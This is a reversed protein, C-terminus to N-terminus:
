SRVLYLEATVAVDNALAPEGSPLPNNWDIGFATRDINGELRLWFREKGYPDAFPDGVTGTLDVPHTVGRITLAGAVILEEGDRRLESSEFSITPTREADLFDPSQLHSSLNEDQVKVDAVQASGRLVGDELTAEFPSFSGRFTGTMYEIAFEIRSHVADARSTGTQLVEQAATLTTSM